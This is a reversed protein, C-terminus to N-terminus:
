AGAKTGTRANQKHGCTPKRIRDLLAAHVLPGTRRRLLLGAGTGPCGLRRDRAVRQPATKSRDPPEQYGDSCCEAPARTPVGPDREDPRNVAVKTFLIAERRWLRAASSEAMHHSAHLRRRAAAKENGRGFLRAEATWAGSDIKCVADGAHPSDTTARPSSRPPACIRSRRMEAFPCEPVHARCTTGSAAHPGKPAGPERLM